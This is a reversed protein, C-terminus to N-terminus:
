RILNNYLLEVNDLTKMSYNFWSKSNELGREVCFDDIDKINNIFKSENEQPFSLEISWKKVADEGYCGAGFPSKMEPTQLYFSKGTKIGNPCFNFYARKISTNNPLKRIFIDSIEFDKINFNKVTIVSKNKNKNEEKSISTMSTM